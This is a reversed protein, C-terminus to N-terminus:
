QRLFTKKRRLNTQFIDKRLRLFIKPMRVIEEYQNIIGIANHLRAVQEVIKNLATDIENNSQTLSRVLEVKVNEKTKKKTNKELVLILFMIESKPKAYHHM